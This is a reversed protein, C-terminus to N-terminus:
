RSAKVSATMPGGDSRVVVCQVTRDGDTWGQETPWLPELDYATDTQFDRGTYSRYAPLCQARVYARFTALDPYSRDTPSAILGDFFLEATHPDTCPHHQVDKIEHTVGSPLDFCDGIKIAAVNGSSVDHLAWGISGVIIFLTLIPFRKALAFADEVSWKLADVAFSGISRHDHLLDGRGRAM